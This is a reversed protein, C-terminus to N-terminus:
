IRVKKYNYANEDTKGDKGTEDTEANEANEDNQLALALKREKKAKKYDDHDTFDRMIEKDGYIMKGKGQRRGKYFQGEYIEGKNNTQRGYGHRRGNKWNGQYNTEDVDTGVYKGLGDRKNNKFNGEYYSGDIYTKKGFGNEMSNEFNGEYKDGNPFLIKVQGSLFGKVYSGEFITGYENITIGPVPQESDTIGYLITTPYFHIWKQLHELDLEGNTPDKIILAHLKEEPLYNLLKFLMNRKSINPIKVHAFIEQIDEKKGGGKRHKNYKHKKRTIQKRKKNRLTHKVKSRTNKM